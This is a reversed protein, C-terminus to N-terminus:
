IVLLVINIGLLYFYWAAIPLMFFTFYGSAKLTLVILAILTIILASIVCLSAIFLRFHFFLICWAINCAIFIFVCWFRKRLPAQLWFEGVTLATLFYNLLWLIPNLAHYKSLESHTPIFFGIIIGMILVVGLGLVTSVVRLFSKM